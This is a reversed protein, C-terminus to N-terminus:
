LNIPLALNLLMLMKAQERLLLAGVVRTLLRTGLLIPLLCHRRSTVTRVPIDLTWPRLSLFEIRATSMLPILLLPFTWRVMLCTLTRVGLILLRAQRLLVRFMRGFLTTGMWTVRFKVQLRMVLCTLQGSYYCTNILNIAAFELNNNFLTAPQPEVQKDPPSPLTFQEITQRAAILLPGRCTLLVSPIVRDWMLRITAAFLRLGARFLTAPTTLVWRTFTGRM